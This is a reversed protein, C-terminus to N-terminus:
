KPMKSSSKDVRFIFTARKARLKKQIKKFCWSFLLHMFGPFFSSIVAKLLFNTSHCFNRSIWWSNKIFTQMRSAAANIRHHHSNKIQLMKNSCKKWSSKPILPKKKTESWQLNSMLLHHSLFVQLLFDAVARLFIGTAQDFTTLKVVQLLEATTCHVRTCM